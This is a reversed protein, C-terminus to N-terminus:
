LMSKWVKIEGGEQSYHVYIQDEGSSIDTYELTFNTVYFIDDSHITGSSIFSTIVVPETFNITVSPSSDDSATCWTYVNTSDEARGFNLVYEPPTVFPNRLGPGLHSTARVRDPPTITEDNSIIMQSDCGIPAHKHSTLADMM